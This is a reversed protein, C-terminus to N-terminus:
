TDIENYWSDRWIRCLEHVKRRQLDSANHSYYSQCLGADTGNIKKADDPKMRKKERPSGPIEPKFIAACYLSNPILAILTVKTSETVKERQLDQSSQLKGSKLRKPNSCSPFDRLGCPRSLPLSHTRRGANAGSFRAGCLWHPSLVPRRGDQHLVYYTIRM